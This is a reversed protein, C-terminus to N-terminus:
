NTRLLQFSKYGDFTAPKGSQGDLFRIVGNQNVVNFVHGTERGRSGFVIGRAGNGADDMSRNISNITTPSGFQRGFYKELVALPTPGGPLASAPRGALMADTAIACNACNQMGGTPNVGRISGAEAGRIGATAETARAGDAAKDGFGFLKGLKSLFKPLKIEPAVFFTAIEWKNENAFQGGAVAGDVAMNATTEARNPVHESCGGMAECAAQRQGMMTNSAPADGNGAYTNKMWDNFSMQKSSGQSQGSSAGNGSIYNAASTLPTTKGIKDEKNNSPMVISGRCQGTNCVSGAIHEPLDAKYGTPDTGSLPNNLIYLLHDSAVRRRRRHSAKIRRPKALAIVV